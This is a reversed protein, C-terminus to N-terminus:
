GLGVYRTPKDVFEDYDDYFTFRLADEPIRSEVIYGVKEGFRKEYSAMFCLVRAGKRTKSKPHQIVVLSNVTSLRCDLRSKTLVVLGVVLM